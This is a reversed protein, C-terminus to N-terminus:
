GSCTRWASSFYRLVISAISYRGLSAISVACAGVGTVFVVIGELPGEVDMDLCAARARDWVWTGGGVLVMLDEAGGLAFSGVERREVRLRVGGGVFGEGM